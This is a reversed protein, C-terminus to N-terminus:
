RRSQYQLVACKKQIHASILSNDDLFLSSTAHYLSFAVQDDIAEDVLNLMPASMEKEGGVFVLDILINDNTKWIPRGNREHDSPTGLQQRVWQEADSGTVYYTYRYERHQM